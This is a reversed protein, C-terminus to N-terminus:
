KRSKDSHIPPTIGRMIGFTRSQRKDKVLYKGIYRAVQQVAEKYPGKPAVYNIRGLGIPMLIECFEKLKSRHIFPAVAVMHVHAHHKWKFVLNGQYDAVVFRTTCELVYSGGKIRNEFLIKRAKPLLKNLKKVEVEPNPDDTMISPLAFTILKPRRYIQAPEAWSKEWIKELRRRMRQYRKKERECRTCRVPFRLNKYSREGTKESIKHTRVYDDDNRPDPIFSCNKCTFAM